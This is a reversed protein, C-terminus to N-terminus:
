VAAGGLGWRRLDAHAAEAQERGCQARQENGWDRRRPRGWESGRVNRPLPGRREEGPQCRARQWLRADDVGVRADVGGVLGCEGVARTVAAIGDVHGLEAVAVVLPLVNM